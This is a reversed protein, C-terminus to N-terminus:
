GRTDREESGLAARPDPQVAAEDAGLVFGGIEDGAPVRVADVEIRVIGEQRRRRRRGRRGSSGIRPRATGWRRRTRCCMSPQISATVAAPVRGVTTCAALLWSVSASRAGPCSSATSSGDVAPTTSRRDEGEPDDAEGRVESPCHGAVQRHRAEVVTGEGPLCLRWRGSDAMPTAASPRRVAAARVVAISCARDFRWVRTRWTVSGVSSISLSLM